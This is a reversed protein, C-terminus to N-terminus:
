WHRTSLAKSIRDELVGTSLCSIWGKSSGPDDARATLVTEVTSGLGKPKVHSVLSMQVRYSDAAPGTMTSGCGVYEHLAAKGLRYSKTFGKNGIEGINRDSVKVEVGFQSYIAPLVAFVSDPPAPIEIAPTVIVDNDRIIAGEDSTALVRGNASSAPVTACSVTIAAIAIIGGIRDSTM